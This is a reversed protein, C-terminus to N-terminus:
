SCRALAGAVVLRIIAITKGIHRFGDFSAMLLEHWPQPPTTGFSVGLCLIFVPLLSGRAADSSLGWRGHDSSEGSDHRKM